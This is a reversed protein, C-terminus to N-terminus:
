FREFRDAVQGSIEVTAQEGIDLNQLRGEDLHRQNRAVYYAGVTDGVAKGKRIWALAIQRQDVTTSSLIWGLGTADTDLIADGERLPRHGKGAPFTLRLVGKDYTPASDRCASKGIFEGKDLKVAWGYGAEIPGIDFKGALEHGYLPLGAEIRLSDRCGLGCPRLGDQRGADLLNRWIAPAKHPPVFLEYGQAAGTYGTRSIIADAGDLQSTFFRFPKLNDLGAAETDPLLKRLISTSAPGQLALDVRGADGLKGDRLDIVTPVAPVAGDRTQRGPTLSSFWDKVKAENAANVVMLYDQEAVRYVLIDDHVHGSEHLLYSYQARGDTLADVNNTTIFNLFTAADPGSFGLCGMHTCDFLGAARRVVQHESKISSYWLPMNYGAFAAMRGKLAVHEDHLISNRVEM